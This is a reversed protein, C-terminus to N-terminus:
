LTDYNKSVAVNGNINDIEAYYRPKKSRGGILGDTAKGVRMKMRM